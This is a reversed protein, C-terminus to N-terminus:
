LALPAQKLIVQMNLAAWPMNTYIHSNPSLAQQFRGLGRNATTCVYIMFHFLINDDDYYM